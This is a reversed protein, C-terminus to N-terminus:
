ENPTDATSFNFLSDSVEAAKKLAEDALHAYRQTMLPSNHTLLQQLTYLQVEGTSAMASAFTHRLGHLPRFSSPLGARERVRRAIVAFVKRQGGNKGPFVYECVKPLKELTNRTHENLPIRETKGKKAVEGRLTIFGKEFDIDDWRLGFLAGKRMGTFLAVKLLAAADQDPEEEIAKLYAAFQEYTMNETKCNDVVPMDFVISESSTYAGVKTAYRLIRKVLGLCHKVSQPSLGYKELYKRLSVIHSTSIDKALVKGLRPSIHRNFRNIDDRISRNSNHAELYLEWLQQFIAKEAQIISSNKESERKETNSLEKGSMRSARIIAAKAETMNESARGVPEEIVKSGRGGRRYTIYYKREKGQKDNREVMNWYVGPYKKSKGDRAM